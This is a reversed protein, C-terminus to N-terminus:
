STPGLGFHDRVKQLGHAHYLTAHDWTRYLRGNFDRTTLRPHIALSKFANFWLTTMDRFPKLADPLSLGAFRIGDTPFCWGSFFERRREMAWKQTAAGGSSSRRRRYDWRLVTYWLKDFFAADVVVVDVDSNETFQRGFRDPHLSFGMKASGVIIINAKEALDLRDSLHDRVLDIGDPWGKFVHPEGAFVHSEVLARPPTDAIYRKFEEVDM